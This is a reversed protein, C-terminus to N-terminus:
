ENLIPELGVVATCLRELRQALRNRNVRKEKSYADDVVAHIGSFVFVAASRADDVVWAQEAAGGRLIEALYDIVVNDVLGERTPSRGEYFLVDHLQISDLYFAVSAAVWTALKGRWDKDAQRGVASKIRILHNRGFREGLASRLEDKSKFYLYFTGKAVDAGMTIHEITTPGVGQELFLRQAADLIEERRLEPAKTRPRIPKADVSPLIAFTDTCRQEICCDRKTSRWGDRCQWGTLLRRCSSM